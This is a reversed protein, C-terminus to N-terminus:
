YAITAAVAGMDMILHAIVLGGLNRRKLYIIVLAL